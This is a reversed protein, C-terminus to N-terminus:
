QGARPLRMRKIMITMALPGRTVVKCSPSQRCAIEIRRLLRKYSTLEGAKVSRCIAARFERFSDYVYRGEFRSRSRTEFLGERVVRAIARNAARDVDLREHMRGFRTYRGALEIGAERHAVAPRLDILISHPKLVRRAEHLAHVM